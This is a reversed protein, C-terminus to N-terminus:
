QVNINFNRLKEPLVDDLKKIDNFDVSILKLSYKKYLKLKDKKRNRYKDDDLGWYELYCNGKPIYFDCFMNEEIPVKREYAHVVGSVYLWNDIVMESMSRVMHGDDCCYKPPFATRFNKEENTPEITAEFQQIIEKVEKQTLITDM